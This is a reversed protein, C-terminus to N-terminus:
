AHSSACSVPATATSAWTVGPRQSRCTRTTLTKFSHPCPTVHGLCRHEASTCRPKGNTPSSKSWMPSIFDAMRAIPHAATSMVCDSRQQLELAVADILAPDILPEDGQVNVVLSEDSLGLLDCAEALRDSGSAHDVRTLIASVGHDACAKVIREDDAAVVCRSAQSLAAQQAVRVVMPAGGIDALPKNPLRSSAMRAPILVTFAGGSM